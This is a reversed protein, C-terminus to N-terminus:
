VEDYAGGIKDGITKVGDRYEENRFTLVCTRDPTDDLMLPLAFARGSVDDGFFQEGGALYISNDSM